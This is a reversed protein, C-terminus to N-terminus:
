CYKTRNVVNGRILVPPFLLCSGDRASFGLYYLMKVFWILDQTSHEGTIYVTNCKVVYQDICNRYRIRTRVHTRRPKRQTDACLALHPTLPHLRTSAHMSAITSRRCSLCPPTGLPLLAYWTRNGIPCHTGRTIVRRKSPGCGRKMPLSSMRSGTTTQRRFPLRASKAEFGKLVATGNQPCIM